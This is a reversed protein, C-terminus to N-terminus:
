VGTLNATLLAPSSESDSILSGVLASVPASVLLLSSAPAVVHLIPKDYMLMNLPLIWKLQFAAGRGTLALHRGRAAVIKVQPVDQVEHARRSSKSTILKWSM